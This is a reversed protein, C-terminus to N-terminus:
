GVWATVPCDVFLDWRVNRRNVTGYQAHPLNKLDNQSFNWAANVFKEEVEDIDLSGSLFNKRFLHNLFRKANGSYRELLQSAAEIETIRNDLLSVSPKPGSIHYHM